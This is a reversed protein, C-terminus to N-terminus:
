HPNRGTRLTVLGRIPTVSRRWQVSRDSSLSIRVAMGATLTTPAYSRQSPADWARVSAIEPIDRKLKAVALPEGVWGVYNYGPRLTTTITATPEVSEESEASAAGLGAALLIAALVLALAARIRLSRM